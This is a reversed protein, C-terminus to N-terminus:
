EATSRSRDRDEVARQGGCDTEAQAQPDGAEQEPQDTMAQGDPRGFAIRQEDVHHAAVQADGTPEAHSSRTM